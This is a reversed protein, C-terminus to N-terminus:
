ELSAPLDLDDYDEAVQKMTVTAAAGLDDVYAAVLDDVVTVPDERISLVNGDEDIDMGRVGQAVNIAQQGLIEAQADILAEILGDYSM